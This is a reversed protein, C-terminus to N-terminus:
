LRDSGRTIQIQVHGDRGSKVDSIALRLRISAFEKAVNRLFISLRNGSM